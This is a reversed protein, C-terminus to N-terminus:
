LKSKESSYLLHGSQIEECVYWDIGGCAGVDELVNSLGDSLDHAFRFGYSFSESQAIKISVTVM